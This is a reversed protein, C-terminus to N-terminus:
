FLIKFIFFFIQFCGTLIWDNKESPNKSIISGGCGGLSVIWPWHSLRDVNQGGVIRDDTDSPLFPVEPTPCSLGPPLSVPGQEWSELECFDRGINRIEGFWPELYHEFFIAFRLSLSNKKAFFQSNPARVLRACGDIFILFSELISKRKM